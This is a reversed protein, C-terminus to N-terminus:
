CLRVPVNKPVALHVPCADSPAVVVYLTSFPMSPGTMEPFSLRSRRMGTLVVAAPSRLREVHAFCDKLAGRRAVCDMENIADILDRLDQELPAALDQVLDERPICQFHLADAEALGSLDAAMKVESLPIFEHKSRFEGLKEKLVEPDAFHELAIGLDNKIKSLLSADLDARLADVEVDLAGAIALLSEASVSLGQEARQVTRVSVDAAEALHQQSWSRLDRFLRVSKAITDTM